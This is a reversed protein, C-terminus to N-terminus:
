WFNRFTGLFGAIFVIFTTLFILIVIISILKGAASSSRAPGPTNGSSFSYSEPLSPRSQASQAQRAQRRGETVAPSASSSIPSPTAVRSVPQGCGSCFNDDAYIRRGCNSCYPMM